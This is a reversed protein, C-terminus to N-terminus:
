APRECARPKSRTERASESSTPLRKTSTVKVGTGHCGRLPAALTSERPARSVEAQGPGGWPRREHTLWPRGAPHARAKGEPDSTAVQGRPAWGLLGPRNRRLNSEGKAPPLHPGEPATRSHAGGPARSGAARRGALAVRGAEKHRTGAAGVADTAPVRRRMGIVTM